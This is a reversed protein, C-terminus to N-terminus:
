NNRAANRVARTRFSRPENGRSIAVAVCAELTSFYCHRTPQLDRPAIKVTQWLTFLGARRLFQRPDLNGRLRRVTESDHAPCKQSSCPRLPEFTNQGEIWRQRARKAGKGCSFHLSCQVVKAYPITHHRTVLSGPGRLFKFPFGREAAYIDIIEVRQPCGRLLSVFNRDTVTSTYYGNYSSPNPNFRRTILTKKGM